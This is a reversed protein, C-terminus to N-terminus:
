PAFSSLGLRWLPCFLCFPLGVRHAASAFIRSSLAAASICAVLLVVLLVVPGYFSSCGPISCLAPMRRVTMSPLVALSGSTALM